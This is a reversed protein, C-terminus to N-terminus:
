HAGATTEEKEEEPTQEFTYGADVLKEVLCQSIFASMSLNRIKSEIKLAEKTQQTVHAAVFVDRDSLSIM